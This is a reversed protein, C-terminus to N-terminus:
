PELEDKPGNRSAPSGDPRLNAHVIACPQLLQLDIGSAQACVALLIGRDQMEAESFFDFLDGHVDGPRVALPGGM